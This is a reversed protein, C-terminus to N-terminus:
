VHGTISIKNSLYFINDKQTTTTYVSQHGYMQKGMLKIEHRRFMSTSCTRDRSDAVM